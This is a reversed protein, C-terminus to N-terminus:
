RDVAVVGSRTFDVGVKAALRIDGVASVATDLEVLAVEVFEGVNEVVVTAPLSPFDVTAELVVFADPVM